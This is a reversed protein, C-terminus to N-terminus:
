ACKRCYPKFNSSRSLYPKSLTSAGHKLQYQLTQITRNLIRHMRTIMYENRKSSYLVTEGYSAAYGRGIKNCHHCLQKGFKLNFSRLKAWNHLLYVRRCITQRIQYIKHPLAYACSAFKELRSVSNKLVQGYLFQALEKPLRSGSNKLYSFSALRM